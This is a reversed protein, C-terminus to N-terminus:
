KRRLAVRPIEVEEFPRSQLRFEKIQDQPLDFELLAQEFDQVGASSGAKAPIEHGDVDIAVVRVSRDRINHTVALSTKNDGAIAGSFIYSVGIGSVAGGGKGMNGITQWPGAAVKFHLTGTTANEPVIVTMASVGPLPRGVRAAPGRSSGGSEALWWHHEAGDPLRALRAVIVKYVGRDSTVASFVPDCPPQSLPTGDPRWWSDPGCPFSSIGMVEIIAGCPLNRVWRRDGAPKQKSTEVPQVTGPPAADGRGPAQPSVARATLGVAVVAGAAALEFAKRFMM